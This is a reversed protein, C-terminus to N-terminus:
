YEQMAAKKLEKFNPTGFGTVPDWGKEAPFGATNCGVASGSTVDTFSTYASNYLFPNLFGLPRKGNAILADNVLSIVSAATPCSASTGDLLALTGNWITVFREGQASIDPYGRGTKNYLASFEKGLIALYNTVAADQYKPRAFYNSFGGGSAFGNMADFAAVEPNFQHTAGVTTVYPCSAPFAPIFMRKQPNANSFCTGNAGVGDDGSSHLLTVGRAGLQALQNCVKKAYSYPVTQEDDGYSTSITQPIKSNPQDLIYDLWTMYPENTDSPTNLDAIFPPMGGTTYATLPTPYTIGLITEADLNGELDKGAALQAPTDPTQQNDGNNIVDVKFQKAGKVADPRYQQLFLKVDSRNNAEMLYDTLGIMNTGAAKPTYDVTGYLTRLCLSTVASVNCVSAVDPVAAGATYSQAAPMEQASPQAVDVVPKLTRKQARARLFSNTPQISDIHEHLHHPLSWELTRVAASGDEHQYVSYKTDLMSEVASVPLVVKIFDKAQSYQLADPHIGHQQLWVHVHFLADDSPQVLANVEEASLHQGYRSHAPDSVEYLSKELEEFQGQRLGINLRILHDAPADGVRSWSRPLNHSDKVAFSSSSKLPSAHTWSSAAVAVWFLFRM